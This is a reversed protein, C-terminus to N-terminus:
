QFLQILTTRKEYIEFAKHHTNESNSEEVEKYIIHYKGPNLKLDIDKQILQLDKVLLWNKDYISAYTNQNNNIQLKGLALYNIDLVEDVKPNIKQNKLPSFTTNLNYNNSLIPLDHLLNSYIWYNNKRIFFHVKKDDFQSSHEFNIFSKPLEIYVDNHTSPILEFQQSLYFPFSHVKIQLLGRPDVHLTDAKGNKLISHIYTNLIHGNVANEISFPINSLTQKGKSRFHISLTTKGTAQIITKQLVKNLVEDDKANVFSGICDFSHVLSDAIDLGIIFPNITIRNEKLFKAADCANGNCNELGDTILIISNIASNDNFDHVAETLSYAIPTQGQPKLNKLVKEFEATNNNAFSVELKSDECNNLSKHFQHGFVRLAVEIDPNSKEISDVLHYLTKKAIDMKSADGWMVEMSGSADLVFLVKHKDLNSQASVYFCTSFCLLMIIQKLNIM